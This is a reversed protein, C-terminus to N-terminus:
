GLSGQILICALISGHIVMPMALTGRWERALALVAGDVFIAPMVAPNIHVVAFLAASIAVAPVISYKTRLGSYLFGRFLSEEGIPVVLIQVVGVVIWPGHALDVSRNATAYWGVWTAFHESIVEQLGMTGFYLAVGIPVGVGIDSLRPWRIGLASVASPQGFRRAGFIAAGLLLGSAGITWVTAGVRASRPDPVRLAFLLIQWLSLAGLAALFVLLANAASWKSSVAQFVGLDPRPPAVSEM